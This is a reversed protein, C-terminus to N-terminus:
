RRCLVKKVFGTVARAVGGLLGVPPAGTALALIDTAVGHEVLYAIVTVVHQPIVDDATGPVGDQGNALKRLADLADQKSNTAKAVDLIIDVASKSM